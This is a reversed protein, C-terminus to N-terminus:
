NFFYESHERNLKKSLLRSTNNFMFSAFMFNGYFDRPDNEAAAQSVNWFM